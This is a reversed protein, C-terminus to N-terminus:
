KQNQLFAVKMTGWQRRDVVKLSGYEDLVEIHDETRVVALGDPNIQGSLIVLMKGLQSDLATDRSLAYPPDVFVLDFGPQDFDAPAGIKFANGCIIKSESLFQAKELNKKLVDVVRFDKEVFLCFSAGRSISEMGFSGTGCFVDAVRKDEPYGKNYLINFISEKVRDTIPRTGSTKPPLLIM